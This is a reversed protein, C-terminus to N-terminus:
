NFSVRLARAALRNKLFINPLRCIEVGRTIVDILIRGIGSGDLIQLFVLQERFSAVQPWDLVQVVDDFLVMAEDLASHLWAQPKM